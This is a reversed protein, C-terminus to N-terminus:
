IDVDALGKNRKVNVAIATPQESNPKLDNVLVREGGGVGCILQDYFLGCEELQKETLKRMSERRGTLIIIKYGKQDWEQFKERVGPLLQPPKLIQGQLEGSHWILTGDLDLVLCRPRKEM